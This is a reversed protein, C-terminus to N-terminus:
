DSETPQSRDTKSLLVQRSTSNRWRSLGTEIKAILEMSMAVLKGKRAKKMRYLALKGGEQACFGGEPDLDLTASQGLMIFEWLAKYTELWAICRDINELKLGKIRAEYLVAGNDYAFYEDCRKYAQQFQSIIEINATMLRDGVLIRDRNSLHNIIEYTLPMLQKADVLIGPKSPKAM